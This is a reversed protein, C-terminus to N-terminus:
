QRLRGLVDYAVWLLMSTILTLHIRRLTSDSLTVTLRAGLTSGVVASLTIVVAYWLPLHGTQAKAVTTLLMNLLVLVSSTGVALSMPLQFPGHLLPLMFVAGGIGLLGSLGGVMLAVLALLGRNVPLNTALPPAPPNPTQVPSTQPITAAQGATQTRKWERLLMLGWASFLVALLLYTLQDDSVYVTLLGGAYAGVISLPALLFVWPWVINKQQHHSWTGAVSGALGQVAAIGTISKFHLLPKAFLLPPLYHLIPVILLGGGIGLLGMLVGISGGIVALFMLVAPDASGQASLWECTSFLLVGNNCLM